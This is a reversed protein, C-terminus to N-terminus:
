TVYLYSSIEGPSLPLQMLDVSYNVSRSMKM